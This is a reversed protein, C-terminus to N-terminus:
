YKGVHEVQPWYQQFDFDPSNDLDTVGMDAITPCGGGLWDTCQASTSLSFIIILAITTIHATM